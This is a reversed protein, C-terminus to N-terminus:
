CEDTTSKEPALTNIPSAPQSTTTMSECALKEKLAKLEKATAQYKKRWKKGEEQVEKTFNALENYRNSIEEQVEKLYAIEEELPKNNTQIIPEKASMAVNLIEKLEDSSQTYFLVNDTDVQSLIAINPYKDIYGYFYNGYLSTETTTSVYLKIIDANQVTCKIPKSFEKGNNHSFASYLTGSTLYNIWIIKNYVFLVAEIKQGLSLIELSTFQANMLNGYHLTFHGFKETVYTVHITQEYLLFCFDVIPCDATILTDFGEWQESSIDYTYLNLEFGKECLVASLIYLKDHYILSQYKATLSPLTLLARPSSEGEKNFVQFILDTCHEYPNNAAYLLYNKKHTLLNINCIKYTNNTDELLTKNMSSDGIKFYIIMNQANKYVIHTNGEQDMSAAYDNNISKVIIQQRPASSVLYDRLYINEGVKNVLSTTSHSILLFAMSTVKM